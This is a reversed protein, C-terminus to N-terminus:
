RKRYRRPGQSPRTRPLRRPSEPTSAAGVIPSDAAAKPLCNHCAFRLSLSMEDVWVEGCDKGPQGQRLVLHYRRDCGQCVVSNEEHVPEGCVVCTEM